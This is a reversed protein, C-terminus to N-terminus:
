EEVEAGQEAAAAAEEAGDAGKVAVDVDEEEKKAAKGKGGVRARKAPTGAMMEEDEEDDAGGAAPTSPASVSPATRKRGGAPTKAPTKPKRGRKAPTVPAPKPTAAAAADDDEDGEAEDAESTAIAPTKFAAPTKRARPTTAATKKAPTGAPTTEAAANDEIKLGFKHRILRWREFAGTFLPPNTLPHPLTPQNTSLSSWARVPSTSIPFLSLNQFVISLTTQRQQSRRRSQRRAQSYVALLDHQHRTPPWSSAMVLPTPNDLWAPTLALHSCLCEERVSGPVAFEFYSCRPLLFLACFALFKFDLYITFLFAYLLASRAIAWTLLSAFYALYIASGFVRCCVGCYFFVAWLSIFKSKKGKVGMIDALKEWNLTPKAELTAVMNVMFKTDLANLTVGNITLASAAGAQRDAAAGAPSNNEPSRPM